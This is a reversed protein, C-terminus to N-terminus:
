VAEYDAAFVGAAVACLVGEPNRTIWDGVVARMRIDAGSVHYVGEAGIPGPYPRIVGEAWADLAWQPWTGQTAPIQFAELDPTIKRYM